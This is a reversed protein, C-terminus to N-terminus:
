RSSNEKTIKDMMWAPEPRLGDQASVATNPKFLGWSLRLWLLLLLVVVVLLRGKQVLGDHLNMMWGSGVM